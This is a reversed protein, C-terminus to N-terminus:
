MSPFSVVLVDMLAGVGGCTEVKESENDFNDVVPM